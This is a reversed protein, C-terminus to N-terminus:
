FFFFFSLFPKPNSIVQPLNGTSVCRSVVMPLDLVLSRISDEPWKPKQLVLYVPPVCVYMCIFCGNWLLTFDFLFFIQAVQWLGLRFHLFLLYLISSFWVQVSNLVASLEVIKPRNLSNSIFSFNDRIKHSVNEFNEPFFLFLFLFFLLELSSYWLSIAV